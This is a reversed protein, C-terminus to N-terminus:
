KFYIGNRINDKISLELEILFKDFYYKKILLFLDYNNRINDSKLIKGHAIENRTNNLDSIIKKYFKVKNDSKLVYNFGIRNDIFRYDNIDININGVLKDFDIILIKLIQKLNDYNITNSTGSELIINGNSTKSIFEGLDKTSIGEGYVLFDRIIIKNHKEYYMDYINKNLKNIKVNNRLIFKEFLDIIDEFFGQINSNSIVISHIVLNNILLKDFQDLKDYNNIKEEFKTIVGFLDSLQRERKLKIDYFSSYFENQKM